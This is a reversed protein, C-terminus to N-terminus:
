QVGVQKQIADAVNQLPVVEDVLGSEILVRPMGYVTCTEENQAIAYINNTQNLQKIGATGDGGMGTLVVCVIEKFDSEM